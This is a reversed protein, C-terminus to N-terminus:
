FSVDGAPRRTAAITPANRDACTPVREIQIRGFQKKSACSGQSNLRPQSDVEREGPGEVSPEASAPTTSRQQRPQGGDRSLDIMRTLEGTGAYTESLARSPASMLRARAASSGLARTACWRVVCSSAVARSSKPAM